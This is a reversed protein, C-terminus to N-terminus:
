NERMMSIEERWMRNFGSLFYVPESLTGFIPDDLLEYWHDDTYVQINHHKFKFNFYPQIERNCMEPFFMNFTLYAETIGYGCWKILMNRVTKLMRTDYYGMVMFRIVYRIQEVTIERGNYVIKKMIQVQEPTMTNKVEDSFDQCELALFQDVKRRNRKTDKIWFGHYPRHM